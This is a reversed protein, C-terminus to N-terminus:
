VGRSSLSLSLFFSPLTPSTDDDDAPLVAAAAAVAAAPIDLRARAPRNNNNYNNCIPPHVGPGGWFLFFSFLWGFLLFAFNVDGHLCIQKPTVREWGGVVVEDV